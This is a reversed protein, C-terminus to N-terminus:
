QSECGRVLIACSGRCFALGGRVVWALGLELMRRVVVMAVRGARSPVRKVAQGRVLRRARVVGVFVWMRGMEVMWVKVRRERGAGEGVGKVLVGEVVTGRAGREGVVRRERASAAM